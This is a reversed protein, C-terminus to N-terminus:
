ARTPEFANDVHLADEVMQAEPLLVNHQAVARGIEAGASVASGEAVDVVEAKTVQRQQEIAVAEANLAGRRDAVGLHEHPQCRDTTGHLMATM